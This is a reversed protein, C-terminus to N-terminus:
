ILLNAVEQLVRKVPIMMLVVPIFPLLTIVTLSVLAALDFPLVKMDHVNAVVGYLDTTASFDSASLAEDAHEDYNRLWKEEFQRGVNEALAGYSFIGSIKQRQLKYVFVLLPGVFLVLVFIALGVATKQIGEITAGQYAVRNAASGAAIVGFTFAVPTFAFLSANLFKLGSAKDPHAAILSLKLRAVKVLFRSWLFLRWLWGFLLIVLLPLSVLAYWWGAWSITTGQGGVLYWPRLGFQDVFRVVGIVIAYTLVIAIIEAVTSSMLSRTSHALSRFGARDREEIIGSRVFHVAIEELRSLCITEAFILLPAAILSRAHVGFDTLFSFISIQNSLDQVVVLIILPLWGILISVAARPKINIAIPRFLGLSKQFHPFPGSGFFTESRNATTM